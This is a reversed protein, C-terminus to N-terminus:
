KLAKVVVRGATTNIWIEDTALKLNGGKSAYTIKSGLSYQLQNFINEPLGIELDGNSGWQMMNFAFELISEEITMKASEM